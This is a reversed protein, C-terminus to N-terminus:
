QDIRKALISRHDATALWYHLRKPDGGGNGLSYIIEIRHQRALTLAKENARASPTLGITGDPKLEYRFFYVTDISATHQQFSTIAADTQWYSIYVAVRPRITSAPPNM